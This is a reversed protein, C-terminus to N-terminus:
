PFDHVSFALSRPKLANLNMDTLKQTTVACLPLYVGVLSCPTMVSLVIIHIYYFFFFCASLAYSKQTKSPSFEYKQGEPDDGRNTSVLLVVPPIVWVVM